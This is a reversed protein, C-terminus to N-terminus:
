FRFYMFGDPEFAGFLVALYTLALYFGARVPWPWTLPALLNGTRHQVLEVLMLPGCYLLFLGLPGPHGLTGLQGLAGLWRSPIGWGTALASTLRQVQELNESRFVLASWAAAHFFAVWCVLHFAGRTVTGKPTWKKLSPEAIRHAILFAGHFAGWLVFNARAGHWLGCLVMTIFTSRYFVFPTFGKKGLLPRLLYDRLFTSLSIHWREWLERPNRAAYPIRFNVMLEVGFLRATGRAIDSYASFDTYVQWAFAYAALVVEPGSATLNWPAFVPAVLGSLNDAVYVKKFLGWGILFVGSQFQTWNFPRQVQLQPLLTKAREIPGAVLQPFFSVFVAFDLFNSTPVLQQRYVDITYSMSQFTYFSIGVPVALGLTWGHGGLLRELGSVFFDYYKFFGLLTLSGTISLALFYKPRFDRRLAGGALILVTVIGLAVLAATAERWSGSPVFLRIVEAPAQFGGLYASSPRLVTGIAEWDIPALTLLEAVTVGALLLLSERGPPPRQAICLGCQYDLACSFVLLSLFRHDWSGYFYLSATVFLLKQPVVSRLTSKLVAYLGLVVVLFFGFRIDNFNM